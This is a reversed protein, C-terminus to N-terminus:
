NDANHTLDIDLGLRPSVPPRTLDPGKESLSPLMPLDKLEASLPQTETGSFGGTAAAVTANVQFNAQRDPQGCTEKAIAYLMLLERYAALSFAESRSEPKRFITEEIVNLVRPTQWLSEIRSLASAYFELGQGDTTYEDFAPVEANFALHFDKRLLEYDDRRDLRHYLTFLDLYALTSTEVNDSIHNRLVDVAKDFHGLSMFFDVQHQVGSLEEANVSRPLSTLSSFSPSFSSHERYASPSASATPPLASTSKGQNLRPETLDLDLAPSSKEETGGDNAPDVALAQAMPEPDRYGFVPLDVKNGSGMRRNWWPGDALERNQQRGRAQFFGAALLALMLLAGLAYVLWNRYREGRAQELQVQLSAM